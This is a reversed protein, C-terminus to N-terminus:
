KEFQSKLFNGHKVLNYNRQFIDNGAKALKERERDNNLYFYIKEILDEMNEYFVFHKISDTRVIVVRKSCFRSQLFKIKWNFKIPLVSLIIFFLHRIYVYIQNLLYLFHRKIYRQVRYLSYKKM